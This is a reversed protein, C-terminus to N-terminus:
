IKRKWLLKFDKKNSFYILLGYVIIACFITFLLMLSSKSIFLYNENTFINLDIINSIFIVMILSCMISKFTISIINREFTIIKKRRLISFLLIANIWASITTAMVLGVHQYPGILVLNLILNIAMCIISVYIPTKTDESAFFPVVLVM